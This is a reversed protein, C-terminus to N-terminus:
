SVIYCRENCCCGKQIYLLCLRTDRGQKFICFIPMTLGDRNNMGM